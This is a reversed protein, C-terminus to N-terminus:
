FDHADNDVNRLADADPDSSKKAFLHSRKKFILFKLRIWRVQNFMALIARPMKRTCPLGRGGV